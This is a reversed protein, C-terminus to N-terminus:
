QRLIGSEVGSSSLACPDYVLLMEKAWAVVDSVRQGSPHGVVWLELNEPRNDSRVGNRHHVIEWPWLQRGLLGEMVFRHKSRGSGRDRVYGRKDPRAECSCWQRNRSPKNGGATSRVWTKLYDAPIETTAGCPNHRVRVFMLRHFRGNRKDIKGTDRLGLTAVVEIDRWKWGVDYSPLRHEVRWLASCRNSCFLRHKPKAGIDAGCQKCCRVM